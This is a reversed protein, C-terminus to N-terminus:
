KAPVFYIWFDHGPMTSTHLGVSGQPYLQKLADLTAQDNYDPNNPDAKVIFLKPGQVSLTQDLNDRQVAFDRNPIGAYIGPLRTDVWYPFPVIWTTDTEGYTLGFQKIVMGMESSNWSANRFQQDYQKFVLDYNQSVSWILLVGTVAWLLVDARRDVRPGAAQKLGTMLGDLVLAVIIFVVVAAGSARNLAPNEAPFALSLSSPLQLVPISLILFLDLWNRRRIYRILLLILGFVFLAGSVVDLAPRHTVSNVWIEGDDWNFMRAANWFNNLLIKWWADPLPQEVTGLRTFTRYGFLAPNDLAYRLLPLFVILSALALVALWIITQSRRGKSTRHLLYLGIAVVVLVAVIRFPSYGHLGFGLFLGSLIFDNRNQRRLGRILYYLTPATFLPYLPFRLGVRAIVNPWYAIGFFLVALLGVRKGGIEKGILYMYPLTALGCLVTGIKLSLFSLGTQFLWAVAVTLYMQFGERGTNRPFYIHTQGQTIDYVDLIKEAHDSFPENPTQVIHYVRFFVVLATVALVVLTWSTIKINWERRTVWSWAKRWWPESGPVKVWLAWFYCAIAAVWLTVNIWNFLNNGLLVFAALTLIVALIMPVRRFTLPDTRSESEPLDVLTWEGRLYAWILMGTGAVYLVIGAFAARGPPEFFLQGVLALGLALLSRWPWKFARAAAAPQLSQPSGTSGDVEPEPAPAVPEPAPIEIKEGRKWFKLKSKLYDLVSPEEM